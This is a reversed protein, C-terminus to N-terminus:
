RDRLYDLLSFLDEARLKEFGEPMISLASMWLDEIEDRALTTTEDDASLLEVTSRTEAMLRGAFTEGDYTTAIWQRYTGEVSRNPDLIEALLARRENEGIGSLDPGLRGGTGEFTHCKACNEAFVVAGRNPVGSEDSRALLSEIEESRAEESHGTATALIEAARKRVEENPHELLRQKQDVDLEPISVNGDELAQLLQHTWEPRRLLLAVAATRPRPTLSKWHALAAAGAEDRRSEALASLIGERVVPPETPALLNSIQEITEPEDALHLLSRAAEVRDLDDRDSDALANMLTKRVALNEHEFRSSQGWAAISRLLDTKSRWELKALLDRLSKIEEESLKPNSDSPGGEALGSLVAERIAPNSDEFSLITSVVTDAPGRHAYHETVTELADRIPNGKPVKELRVDDYWATGTSQGWGGLLCNIGVETRDGTDFVVEVQTWFQTGTVAPTQVPQINHVNFLAGRGNKTNVINETQIWGSLRYDTNPEVKATTAWTFDAGKESSLAVCYDGEKARTDLWGSAEGSYTATKWKLPRDNEVEEFSPNPVVNVAREGEEQDPDDLNAVAQLFAADHRAAAITAATALWPDKLDKSDRLDNFIEILNKGVAALSPLDSLALLAQRRVRPDPDSLIGRTLISQLSDLNPPLVGLAAKRVAAAPHGLAEMALESWIRPDPTEGEFAGLGQMTWLAHVAAPNNGTEDLSPDSALMALRHLVSKDEKEVLLRQAHRRWFLNDSSLAGVLEDPTANDLDYTKSPRSDEHVIRYIRGHEKDRMPTEYANGAGTVFGPPTPNHRIIFNYWDLFWVAGDPGVEAAVPATWEDESALLNWGDLASYSSGKKAMVNTHILHGTPECVFAKRNWYSKPFSRATYPAHGAAATFMGHHDVQRVRSIPHFFEHAEIGLSGNGSFGHVSEYFRNPISLHVSHQGNATSAFVENEEDIGLGWTNNTTNTVFELGSGDPRFRFLGQRFEHTVDGINIKAGSYGITAWIWNDFGYLFNSHVAHTDEKGFGTLLVKRVDAVDDGGTDKLFLIDPACAVLIGGNAHVLSTPINLGQAFVTFKDARGDGDTDECIKIRDHGEGDPLPRNPYDVSEAVWARGRADFAFAIPNVIDPEAAFLEARFGEPLSMRKMSEEPSLPVPVEKEIEPQKAPVKEPAPLGELEGAAWRIGRELLEQFEEKEWTREDHGLATYFVRGKGRTRVWTVPEYGEGEERLMLVRNDHAFRDHVYTEDWLVFGSIGNMAPHLTDNVLVSFTGAGHSQFRGGILEIYKDSNGFAASASHVVVLGGGNEVFAILAEEQDPSLVGLNNYLLLVDCSALNETTLAEPTDRYTSDFGAANFSNQLTEFLDRPRHHGNDGLFLIHIGAEGPGHLVISLYLFCARLRMM